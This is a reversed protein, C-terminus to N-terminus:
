RSLTITHPAFIMRNGIRHDVLFTGTTLAAYLKPAKAATLTYPRNRLNILGTTMGSRSEMRFVDRDIRIAGYEDQALADYLRVIRKTLAVDAPELHLPDDSFMIQGALLFNVLAILEKENESLKCNKSRLFIVDPDNTYVTGDMFSRGITDMLSIYAGPRGVHGLLKVARWDWEERTDAGIRSLPFHRFSPGLPAGCGLYTVPLGSAARHRSTLMACAKEYHEWPSGGKAFAGPLLGTYLFDLKLYRFGWADIVRDILAKLYELVDERSLDLCYYQKDWLHNFGAVVPNGGGLRTIERLLWEPKETFVRSRRTVLFPALWLGPIYGAAEIQKAIVELGRPFRSTDVEWEGVAKEWGDDIQFIVPKKRDLYWLKILNETKGLAELDELILKETIDTYHNYWSAYGGPLNEKGPSAGSEFGGRLFDNTKFIEGQQYIKKLADKLNFYGRVHFIHIEAVPEGPKWLKGPCFVEPIVLKEKRSIRYSVPPLRSAPSCSGKLSPSVRDQSAICLYLDGSRIYMIFHGALRDTGTRLWVSDGPRNTLKILEPIIRVKRPPTEKGVLEWGASWSQWGGCHVAVDQSEAILAEEEEYMGALACLDAFTWSDILVTNTDERPVPLGGEQTDVRYRLMTGATGQPLSEEECTIGTMASM